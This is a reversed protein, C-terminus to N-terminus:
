WSRQTHSPRTLCRSGHSGRKVRIAEEASAGSWDQLACHELAEVQFFSGACSRLDAKPIIGNTFDGLQSSNNFVEEPIWSELRAQSSHSCAATSIDCHRFLSVSGRFPQKMSKQKWGAAPPPASTTAAAQCCAAPSSSQRDFLTPGHPTTPPRLM